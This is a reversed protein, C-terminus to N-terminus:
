SHRQPHPDATSHVPAEGLVIARAVFPAFCMAAAAWARLAAAVAKGDIV